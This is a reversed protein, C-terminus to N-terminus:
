EPRERELTVIVSERSWFLLLRRHEVVQCIPRWGEEAEENLREELKKIPIKSEGLFITGIVGESVAIVKYEKV